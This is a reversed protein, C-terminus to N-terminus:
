NERLWSMSWNVLQLQPFYCHCCMIYRYFLHLLFYLILGLWLVNSYIFSVCPLLLFSGIQQRKYANKMSQSRVGPAFCHVTRCSAVTMALKRGVCNDNEYGAGVNHTAFTNAGMQAGMPTNTKFHPTTLRLTAANSYQPLLFHNHWEGVFVQDLTLPATNKRSNLPHMIWITLHAKMPPSMVRRLSAHIATIDYTHWLILMRRLLPHTAPPHFLVDNTYNILYMCRDWRLLFSLRMEGNLSVRHPNICLACCRLKM